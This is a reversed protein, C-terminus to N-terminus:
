PLLLYYQSFIFTFDERSLLGKECAKFLRSDWFAHRDRLRQLASLGLESRLWFTGSRFPSALSFEVAIRWRALPRVVVAMRRM